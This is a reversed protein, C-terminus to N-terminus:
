RSEVAVEHLVFFRRPWLVIGLLNMLMNAKYYSHAQLEVTQQSGVQVTTPESRCWDMSVQVQHTGPEVTFTQRQGHRVPGAPEGDVRVHMARVLGFLDDRPRAIAIQASADNM